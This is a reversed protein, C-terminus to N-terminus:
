GRNVHNMTMAPRSGIPAGRLAVRWLFRYAPGRVDAGPRYPAAQPANQGMYVWILGDDQWAPYCRLARTRHATVAADSLGPIAVCAGDAAFAWGHYPCRMHAGCVRGGSLPVGRHPCYDAFAALAGGLRALVM